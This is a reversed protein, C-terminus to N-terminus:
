GKTYVIRKSGGECSGVIKGTKAAEDKPTVTLVAGKVGKSEMKAAIKEKLEDCTKSGRIPAAKTPEAVKASDMVPAKEMAPKAAKAKMMKKAHKAPKAVKAAATDVAKASDAVPSQAFTACAVLALAALIKKATNASKM